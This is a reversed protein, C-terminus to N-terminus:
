NFNFASAIKGFDGILTNATNAVTNVTGAIGALDIGGSPAAQTVTGPMVSQYNSMAGPVKGTTPVNGRYLKLGFFVAAGGAAVLLGILVYKTM